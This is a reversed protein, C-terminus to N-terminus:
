KERVALIVYLEEFWLRKQAIIRTKLGKERLKREVDEPDNLSSVLIQIKGGDKLRAPADEIFRDIVERGRAGGSWSRGLSDDEQAPLYPPNFVILDFRLDDPISKFLDSVLFELNKAGNRRANDKAIEISRPNIDAALVKGAKEAAVIAQLGTGSGMDLVNDGEAVALNEALLESDEKPEYVQPHTKFKYGRFYYTM